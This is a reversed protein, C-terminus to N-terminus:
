NLSFLSLIENLNFYSLVNKFVFFSSLVLIMLIWVWFLVMTVRSVMELISAFNGLALKILTWLDKITAIELISDKVFSCISIVLLAIGM